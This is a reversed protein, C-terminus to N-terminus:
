ATQVACTKPPNPSWFTKCLDANGGGTTCGSLAGNTTARVTYVAAAPTAISDGCTTVASTYCATTSPLSNGDLAVVFIPFGTTVPYKNATAAACTTAYNTSVATTGFATCGVPAACVGANTTTTTGTM